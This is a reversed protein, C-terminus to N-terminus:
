DKIIFEKKFYKEEKKSKIEIYDSITNNKKDKEQSWTIIKLIENAIDYKNCEIYEVMTKFANVKSIKTM